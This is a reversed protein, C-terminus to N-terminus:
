ENIHGFILNFGKLGSATVVQSCGLFVDKSIMKTLQPLSDLIETVLSASADVENEIISAELQVAITNITRIIYGASTSDDSDRNCGVEEDLTAQRLLNTEM